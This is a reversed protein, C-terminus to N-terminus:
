CDIDPPLILRLPFGQMPMSSAVANLALASCHAKIIYIPRLPALSALYPAAPMGSLTAPKPPLYFKQSAATANLYADSYRSGITGNM